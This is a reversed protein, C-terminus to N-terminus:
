PSQRQSDSAPPTAKKGSRRKKADERRQLLQEADAESAEKITKVGYYQDYESKKLRMKGRMYGHEPCVALCLYLKQGWPFWRVKKRLMRGCRLCVMDMLEKDKM